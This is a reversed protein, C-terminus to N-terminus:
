ANENARGAPSSSPDGAGCIALDHSMDIEPRMRHAKCFVAAQKAHPDMAIVAPKTKACRQQRVGCLPRQRVSPEFPKIQVHQGCILGCYPEIKSGSKCLNTLHRLHELEVPPQEGICRHCLSNALILWPVNLLCCTETIVAQCMPWPLRLRAFAAKAWAHHMERREMLAVLLGADLLVEPM